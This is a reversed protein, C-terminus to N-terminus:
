LIFHYYRFSLPLQKQSLELPIGIEKGSNLQVMFLDKILQIKRLSAQIYNRGKFIKTAIMVNIRKLNKTKLYM